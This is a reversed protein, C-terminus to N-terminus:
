SRSLFCIWSLFVVVGCGVLYISTLMNIFLNLTNLDFLLYPGMICVATPSYCWAHLFTMTEQVAEQLWLPWFLSFSSSSCLYDHERSQQRSSVRVGQVFYFGSPCYYHITLYYVYTLYHLRTVNPGKMCGKGFDILATKHHCLVKSDSPRYHSKSTGAAGWCRNGGTSVILSIVLMRIEVCVFM